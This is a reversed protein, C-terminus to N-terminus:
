SKFCPLGLDFFRWLSKPILSSLISGLAAWFAEPSKIFSKRGLSRRLRLQQNGHRHQNGAGETNEL